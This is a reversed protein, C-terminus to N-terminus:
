NKWRFRLQRTALFVGLVTLVVPIWNIGPFRDLSVGTLALTTLGVCSLVSGIATQIMTVSARQRTRSGSEFRGFALVVPLLGALLTTIWLPRLSWWTVSGPETRLGLGGLALSIGVVATVVTLHWLYVTMIHQSAFIVSVWPTERQLWANVPGAFLLLLSAQVSGLALMATTPPRTNSFAEGPVSVMSLPYALPGVLLFMWLTGIVLLM